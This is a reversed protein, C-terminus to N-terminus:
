IEEGTVAPQFGQNFVTYVWRVHMYTKKKFEESMLHILYALYACHLCGSWYIPSNLQKILSSFQAFLTTKEFPFAHEYGTLCAPKPLVLGRM